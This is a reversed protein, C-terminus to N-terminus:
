KEAVINEKKITAGRLIMDIRDSKFWARDNANQSYSQLINKDTIKHLLVYTLGKETLSLNVGPTEASYLITPFKGTEDCKIQGKNEIFCIPIKSLFEGAKLEAQGKDHAAKLFAPLCIMLSLFLHKIM